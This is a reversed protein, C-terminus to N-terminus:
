NRFWDVLRRGTDPQVIMMSLMDFYIGLVGIIWTAQPNSIRETTPDDLCGHKLFLTAILRATTYLARAAWANLARILHRCQIKAHDVTTLNM